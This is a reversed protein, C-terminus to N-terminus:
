DSRSLRGGVARELEIAALETERELALLTQKARIVERQAELFATVDAQGARLEAEALAANREAAGLVASRQQEVLRCGHAHDSWAVRAARIARQAAAEYSAVAARAAAGARAIQADNMDFIPVAASLVPGASREGGHDREADLGASLERVRSLEEISLDAAHAEIIAGSAAVDLRQALALRVADEEAGAVFSGGAPQSVSWADAASPFGMLELLMRRDRALERAAIMRMIESESLMQRARNVDLATGEGRTVRAELIEITRRSSAIAEDVLRAEQEAFGIRAYTAKVEAALKLARDSVGLVAQNLRADAARVRGGRLWLAVFSQMVGAGVFTGGEVPDVPVRFAMTLMPNPLLGAQALDARALSIQEVEARLERNNRLAMAIASELPLPESGDWSVLSTDWPRTWDTAVGGREFM